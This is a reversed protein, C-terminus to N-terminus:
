AARLQFVPLFRGVVRGRINRVHTRLWPKFQARTPEDDAVLGLQALVAFVATYLADRQGDGVKIAIGLGKSRIGIAQVGDAGIKTVWDGPAISMLARDSRKTGSVLEPHSTMAHSLTGLADGDRKANAGQALQAYLYALRSLPLAYNPASCGDTGAPMADVGLGASDAIAAAVRRQLPSTPDLYSELPEGHLRCAALFGAHKGSCNHQLTTWKAGAPPTEGLAAYWGPVHCGCQLQTADCDVSELMRAVTETHMDEGSHSACMLAIERSSWGYRAPGGDRVFSLAQFAKLTSRTFTSFHPDGAAYVVRGDADVVAVAGYHVNEIARPDLPHEVEADARSDSGDAWTRTTAVLPVLNPEFKV